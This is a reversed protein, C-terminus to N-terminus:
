NNINLIKNNIINCLIEEIWKEKNEKYIKKLTDIQTNKKKELEEINKLYLENQFKKANNLKEVAKSNISDIISQKQSKIKEKIKNCEDEMSKLRDQALTEIDFIEKLLEKVPDM